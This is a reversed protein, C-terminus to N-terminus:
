RTKKFKKDIYRDGVYYVIIAIFYGIWYEFNFHQCIKLSLWLMPIFIFLRIFLGIVFSIYRM